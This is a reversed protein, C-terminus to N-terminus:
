QRAEGRPRAQVRVCDSHVSGESDVSVVAYSLALDGVDIKYGGGPLPQSSPQAPDRRLSLSPPQNVAAAAEIIEGTLPDAYIIVAQGLGHRTADRGLQSGSFCMTVAAVVVIRLCIRLKRDKNM